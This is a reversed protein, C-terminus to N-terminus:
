FTTAVSTGVPKAPPTGQHVAYRVAFEVEGRIEKGPFCQFVGRNAEYEFGPSERLAVSRSSESATAELAYVEGDPLGLYIRSAGNLSVPRDLVLQSGQVSLVRGCMPPPLTAVETGALALLTGDILSSAIVKGAGDLRVFGYRGRFRVNGDERDALFHCDTFGEGAVSVM